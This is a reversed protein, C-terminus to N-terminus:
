EAVEITEPQYEVSIKYTKDNFVYLICDGTQNEHYHGLGGQAMNALVGDIQSLIMREVDNV